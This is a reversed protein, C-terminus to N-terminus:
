TDKEESMKQKLEQIECQLDAIEEDYNKSLITFYISEFAMFTLVVVLVIAM